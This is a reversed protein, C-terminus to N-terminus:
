LLPEIVTSGARAVSSSAATKAFIPYTDNSSVVHAYTSSSSLYLCSSRRFKLIISTNPIANEIITLVMNGNGMRAKEMSSSDVAMAKNSATRCCIDLLAALESRVIEAGEQFIKDRFADSWKGPSVVRWRRSM